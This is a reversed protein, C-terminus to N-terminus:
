FGLLKAVKETTLVQVASQRRLKEEDSWIACDLKLALAFFDVDDLDPSIEKARAFMDSYKDESAFTVVTKLLKMIIEFQSENLLFDKMIDPKHEELEKLAFTPSYLIVEGSVSLQRARSRENFFSFLINTDVVLEM